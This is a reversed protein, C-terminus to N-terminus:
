AVHFINLSFATVKTFKILCLVSRAQGLRWGLVAQRLGGVEGLYTVRAVGPHRDVVVGPLSIIVVSYGVIWWWSGVRRSVRLWSSM